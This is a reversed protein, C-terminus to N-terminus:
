SRPPRGPRPWRSGRDHRGRASRACAGPTGSRRRGRGGGAAAQQDANGPWAPRTRAAGGSASRRECRGHPEHQMVRSSANIQRVVTPDTTNGFGIRVADPVDPWPASSAGYTSRPESPATTTFDSDTSGHAPLGGSRTCSVVPPIILLTPNCPGPTRAHSASSRGGSSSVPARTTADIQPRVMASYSAAAVSRASAGAATTATSTFREQGLVSAARSRKAWETSSVRETM